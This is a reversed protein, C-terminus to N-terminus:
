PSPRPQLGYRKMLAPDLKFAPPNTSAAPLNTRPGTGAAASRPILGYRKALIPDLRYRGVVENPTRDTLESIRDAASPGDKAIVADVLSEPSANTALGYRRLLNPTLQGARSMSTATRVAANHRHTMEEVWSAQQALLVAKRMGWAGTWMVLFCTVVIALLQRAVTGFQAGLRRFNRMGMWLMGVFPILGSVAVLAIGFGMLSEATPARGPAVVPVPSAEWTMRASAVAEDLSTLAFMAGAYGMASLLAGVGVAEAVATMTNRSFSSAYVSTAFVLLVVGIYGWWAVPPVDRFTTGLREQDFGLYVLVAPLLVGLVASLMGVVAVKTWWQRRVSVPQTLQWELTGLEREEAVSAAGTTVVILAGFMGMFVTLTPVEDLTSRLGEDTTTRRLVMWLVWMGLMLGAVLWPVVHLRLEKRLLRGTGGTSTSWRGLLADMPLSLPHLGNSSRGGAGGDRVELGRFVRWGLWSTGILYAPIGIGFLWWAWTEPLAEGPHSFRYGTQLVLMVSIAALFPTALTFVLGALTSRSLLSFLPASCFVFVPVWLFVHWDSPLPWRSSVSAAGTTYFITAVILMGGLMSLKERYLTGRSVPQGLLGAITRQEFEAGLTSAGMLLCGFTFFWSGTEVADREGNVLAIGPVLIAVLSGPMLTRLDKLLRVPRGSVPRSRLWFLFLVVALAGLLRFGDLVFEGPNDNSWDAVSRALPPVLLLLWAPHISNRRTTLDFIM